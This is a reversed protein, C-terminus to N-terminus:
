GGYIESQRDATLSRSAQRAASDKIAALSPDCFRRGVLHEIAEDLGLGKVWLMYALVVTASRNMGATCHVYVVHGANLIDALTRVCEPLNAILDDLDDDHTPHRHVALGCKGYYERLSEWPIRLRRNDDDTQLNLVATVAFEGHLRDVDTVTQPCSGLYLRPEIRDLDM